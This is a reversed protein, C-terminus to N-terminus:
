KVNNELDSKKSIFLLWTIFYSLAYFIIAIVLVVLQFCDSYNEAKTYSMFIGAIIYITIPLADSIKDITTRRLDFHKLLFMKKTLFWLSGCCSAYLIITVVLVTMGFNSSTTKLELNFLFALITASISLLTTRQYQMNCWDFLINNINSNKLKERNLKLEQKLRNDLNDEITNKIIKDSDQSNQSKQVADRSDEKKAKHRNWNDNWWQWTM